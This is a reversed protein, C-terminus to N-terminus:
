KTSSWLYLRTRNRRAMARELDPRSAQGTAPTAGDRSSSDEAGSGEWGWPPHVPGRTVGPESREHGTSIVDSLREEIALHFQRRTPVCLSADAGRESAREAQGPLVIRRLHDFVGRDRHFRSVTIRCLADPVTWERPHAKLRGRYAAIDPLGLERLRENLEKRVRARVQRYGRWRLGLRPLAWQLFAGLEAHSM